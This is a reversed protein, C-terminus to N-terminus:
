AVRRSDPLYRARLVAAWKPSQESWLDQATPWAGLLVRLQSVQQPPHVLCLTLAWVDSHSADRPAFSHSFEHDLAIVRDVGRLHSGVLVTRAVPVYLAPVGPALVAEAVALGLARGLLDVASGGAVSILQAALATMESWGYRHPERALSEACERGLATLIPSADLPL